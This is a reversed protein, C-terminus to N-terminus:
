ATVAMKTTRLLARSRDGLLGRVTVGSKSPGLGLATTVSYRWLSVVAGEAMDDGGKGRPVPESAL